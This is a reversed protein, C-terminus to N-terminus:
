PRKELVRIRAELSKVDCSLERLDSDVTEVTRQDHYGDFESVITRRFRSELSQQEASTLLIGVEVNELVSQVLAKSLRNIFGTDVM